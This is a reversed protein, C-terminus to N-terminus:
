VPLSPGWWPLSAGTDNLVVEGTITGSLEKCALFLYTGSLDDPGLAKQLPSIEQMKEGLAPDDWHSARHQDLTALGRLNTVVGGPAVGNVRVEPALERALQRIMGLVAHKSATYLVGGGGSNLSAVSATLVMCGKTKALEDASAKAGLLIGKVNISFQEDFAESLKDKPIDALLTFMDFVGANGVFIDLAGFASVTQAVAAENDQLRSVDGPVAILSSGFQSRLEEVREPVRELVGVRAGERIFREVVSRGIGSGGGTVLAVKGDLLGM